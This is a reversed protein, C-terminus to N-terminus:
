VDADETEDDQGHSTRHGHGLGLPAFMRRLRRGTPREDAQWLRQGCLALWNVCAIANWKPGMEHVIESLVFNATLLVRAIERDTLESEERLHLIAHEVTRLGAQFPGRKHEGEAVLAALKDFDLWLPRCDRAGDPQGTDPKESTQTM